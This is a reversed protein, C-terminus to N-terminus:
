QVPAATLRQLASNRNLFGFPDFQDQLNGTNNGGSQQARRNLYEVGSVNYTVNASMGARFYINRNVWDQVRTAITEPVWLIDGAALQLNPDRGTTIRDLDLRVQIDKGDPLRRILTAEKPTVDTRLGGSAALAQLITMPVGSPYTQPAPANVLGGVFVTNPVASHVNVIDGDKLPDLALAATLEDPSLLDLTVEEGSRRIRRLTVKGSALQSVGGAGVIAHLLDRETRRLQVLGPLTVAGTVLIETTEPAILVAHVVLGQYYKPVYANKVTDEVDELELGAIKIEGVLPLEVMGKRDVRIQLPGIPAAGDVTTLTLGLEDSPGVKYPGLAQDIATNMVPQSTAPQSTPPQSAEKQMEMFEALSVRHDSCGLAGTLILLGAGLLGLEAQRCQAKRRSRGKLQM